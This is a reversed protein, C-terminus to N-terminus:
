TDYGPIIVMKHNCCIHTNIIKGLINIKYNEQTINGQKDVKEFTPLEDSDDKTKQCKVCIYKTM